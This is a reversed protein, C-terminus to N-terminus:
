IHKEADLQTGFKNTIDAQCCTTLTAMRSDRVVGTEGLGIQQRSISPNKEGCGDCFTDTIDAEKRDWVIEAREKNKIIDEFYPSEVDVDGNNLLVYAEDKNVFVDVIKGKRSLSYTPGFYYPFAETKGAARLKAENEMAAKQDEPAQAIEPTVPLGQATLWGAKKGAAEWQTRSLKIQM